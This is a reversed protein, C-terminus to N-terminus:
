TPLRGGIGPTNESKGAGTMRLVSAPRSSAMIRQPM